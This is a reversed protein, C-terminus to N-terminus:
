IGHKMTSCIMEVSGTIVAVAHKRLSGLISLFTSRGSRPSTVDSQRQASGMRCERGVNRRATSNPSDAVFSPEDPRRCHHREQGPCPVALQCWEAQNGKWISGQRRLRPQRDVGVRLLAAEKVVRYTNIHQYRMCAHPVLRDKFNHGFLPQDILPQETLSVGLDNDFHVSGVPM